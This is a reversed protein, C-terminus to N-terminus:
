ICSPMRSSACAPLMSLHQGSMVLCHAPLTQSNGRRRLAASCLWQSQGACRHPSRLPRAWMEDLAPGAISPFPLDCLQLGTEHAVKQFLDRGRLRIRKLEYLYELEMLAMPSLLLDATEILAQAKPTIQSIKGAALWVVVHTDLYVAQIAM